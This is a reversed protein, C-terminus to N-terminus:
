VLMSEGISGAKAEAKSPKKKPRNELRSTAGEPAAAAKAEEKEENPDKVEEAAGKAEEKKAPMELVPFHNQPFGTSDTVDHTSGVSGNGGSPGRL